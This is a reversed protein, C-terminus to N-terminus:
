IKLIEKLDKAFGNENHATIILKKKARTLAVYVTKRDIRKDYASKSHSYPLMNVGTVIVIDRELGKSSKYPMVVLKNDPIYKKDKESKFSFSHIKNQLVRKLNNAYKENLYSNPTLIFIDGPKYGKYLLNSVIENIKKFENDTIYFNVNEGEERLVIVDNEVISAELEKLEKILVKDKQLFSVATKLINGPNRYSRKLITVRGTADFGVEKWKWDRGEYIRQTEDVGFVIIGDKKILAKILVFVDREFAQSEDCLIVDYKYNEDIFNSNEKIREVLVSLIEDFPHSNHIYKQYLYGILSNITLIDFDEASINLNRINAIHNISFKIENVLANVFSVILIKKKPNKIKEYIAKGILVVTKGSGASGRLIRYGKKHSHLLNEQYIDLIPIDEQTINFNIKSISLYPFLVRRIPEFEKESIIKNINLYNFRRLRFVLKEILNKENRFLCFEKPIVRKFSEDAFLDYEKETLNPFYIIFSVPLNQKKFSREKQIKRSIREVFREAEKIPNSGYKSNKGYFKGNEKIEGDKIFDKDWAKVEIVLIGVQPHIWLIDPKILEEEFPIIPKFYLISITEFLRRKLNNFARLEVRENEDLYEREEGLSILRNLNQM